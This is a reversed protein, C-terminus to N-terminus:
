RLWSWRQVLGTSKWARGLGVHDGAHFLWLVLVALAGLVHDDIVPNTTPPLVVTWMMLYMITGSIGAVTMGIGLTLALGLGCLGIMFLWDAWWDGAIGNYFDQFPGKPANGLYGETPSGGNIWAADGFRDLNGAQDYGSFSSPGPPVPAKTV